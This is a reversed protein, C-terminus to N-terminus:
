KQEDRWRSPSVGVRRKFERSFYAPDDFGAALAAEKVSTGARLLACAREFRLRRRLDVFSRGTARRIMTSLHSQSYGLRRALDGLRARGDLHTALFEELVTALPAPSPTPARALTRWLRALRERAVGADPEASALDQAAEALARRIDDGVRDDDMLLLSELIVVARRPTEAVLVDLLAGTRVLEEPDRQRLAQALRRVTARVMADGTVRHM